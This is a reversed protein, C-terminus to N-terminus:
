ERHVDNVIKRHIKFLKRGRAQSESESVYVIELWLHM